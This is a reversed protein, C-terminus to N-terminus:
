PHQALPVWKCYIFNPTPNYHDQEQNLRDSNDGAAQLWPQSREAEFVRWQQAACLLLLFDDSPPVRSLGPWLAGWFAPVGWVRGQHTSCGLDSRGLMPVENIGEM